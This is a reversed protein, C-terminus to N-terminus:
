VVSKRDRRENSEDGVGLLLGAELEVADVPKAVRDEVGLLNALLPLGLGAGCEGLKALLWPVGVRRKEVRRLKM